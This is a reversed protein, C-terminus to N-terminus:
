RLKSIGLVPLAESSSKPYRNPCAISALAMSSHSDVAERAWGTRMLPRQFKKPAFNVKRKFGTRYRTVLRGLFISKTHGGAFKNTPQAEPTQKSSEMTFVSKVATAQSM